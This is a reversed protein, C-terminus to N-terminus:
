PSAATTGTCLCTSGGLSGIRLLWAHPGAHAPQDCGGGSARGEEAGLAQIHRRHLLRPVGHDRRVQHRTAAHPRIGHAASCQLMLRAAAAQLVIGTEIQGLFPGIQELRAVGNRDFGSLLKLLQFPVDFSYISEM